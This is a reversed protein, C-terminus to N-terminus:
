QEDSGIRVRLLYMYQCVEHNTHALRNLEVMCSELQSSLTDVTEEARQKDDKLKSVVPM